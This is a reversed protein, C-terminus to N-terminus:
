RLRRYWINEIPSKTNFIKGKGTIAGLSIVKNIAEEYELDDFRRLWIANSKNKNILKDIKDTHCFGVKDRNWVVSYIKKSKIQYLKNPILKKEDIKGESEELVIEMAQEYDEYPIVLADVLYKNQKIGIKSLYIGISYKTKVVYVM